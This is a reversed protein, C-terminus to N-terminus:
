APRRRSWALLRSWVPQTRRAAMLSSAASSPLTLVGATWLSMM